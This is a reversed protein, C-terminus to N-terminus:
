RNNYDIYDQANYPVKSSNSWIVIGGRRVVSSGNCMYDIKGGGEVTKLNPCQYLYNYYNKDYGGEETNYFDAMLCIKITSPLHVYTIDNNFAFPDSSFGAVVEVGEPIYISSDGTGTYKFATRGKDDTYVYQSFNAEEVKNTDDYSDNDNVNIKPLDESVDSEILDNRDNDNVNIKPPNESVDSEILDNRDDDNRDTFSRSKDSVEKPESTDQSYTSENGSTEEYNDDSTQSAPPLGGAFYKGTYDSHENEPRNILAQANAISQALQERTAQSEAIIDESGGGVDSGSTAKDGGSSSGCGALSIMLIVLMLLGRKM